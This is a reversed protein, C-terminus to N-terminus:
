QWTFSHDMTDSWATLRADQKEAEREWYEEEEKSMPEHNENM